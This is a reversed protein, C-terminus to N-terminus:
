VQCPWVEECRSRVHGCRRVCRSSVHGCRRVYRSRVHGCRRVGLGSM